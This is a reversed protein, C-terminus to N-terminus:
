GSSSTRTGSRSAAPAAIGHMTFCVNSAGSAAGDAAM